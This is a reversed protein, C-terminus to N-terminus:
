GRILRGCFDVFSENLEESEDKSEQEPETKKTDVAPETKEKTTEVFEKMMQEPGSETEENVMRDLEEATVVTVESSQYKRLWDASVEAKIKRQTISYQGDKLSKEIWTFTNDAYKIIFLDHQDHTDLVAQSADKNPNCKAIQIMGDTLNQSRAWQFAAVIDSIPNASVAEKIQNDKDEERLYGRPGRGLRNNRGSGSGGLRGSNGDYGLMGGAPVHFDICYFIKRPQGVATSAAAGVARSDSTSGTVNGDSDIDIIDSDDPDFGLDNIRRQREEEQQKANLKAIQEDYFNQFQNNSSPPLVEQDIAEEKSLGDDTVFSSNMGLKEFFLDYFFECAKERSCDGKTVDGSIFMYMSTPDQDIASHLYVPAMGRLAEAPIIQPKDFAPFRRQYEPWNYNVVSNIHQITSM